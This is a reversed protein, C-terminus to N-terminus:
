FHDIQDVPLLSRVARQAVADREMWQRYAISDARYQRQVDENAVAAPETPTTPAPLSGSTHGLLSVGDRLYCRLHLRLCMLWFDFQYPLGDADFALVPPTAM